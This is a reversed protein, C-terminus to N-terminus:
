RIGEIPGHCGVMAVLEGQDRGRRWDEVLQLLTTQCNHHERYASLFDGLLDRFYSLLQSALIREFINNMAPLVTFPRFLTKDIYDESSKPLPHDAGEEM